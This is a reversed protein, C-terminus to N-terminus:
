NRENLLRKITEQYRKDLCDKIVINKEKLPHFFSLKYAYLALGREAEKGYLKDGIIPMAVEKLHVRIQHTRGNVLQCNLLTLKNDTGLSTFITKAPKGTLSIRRRKSDHRDKGIPKDVIFTKGRKINAEVLALYERKIAKNFLLSDFLPQFVYSRSFMILGCTDKDCRHLPILKELRENELLSTLNTESGGDSHVLIGSRKHALLCFPDCYLIKINESKKTNSTEISKNKYLPLSLYQGLLPEDRKLVHGDLLIEQGSLLQYQLKKSPLFKDLFVQSNQGFYDSLEFIIREEEIQYRM